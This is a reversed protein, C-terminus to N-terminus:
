HITRKSAWHDLLRRLVLALVFVLYHHLLAGILEHEGLVCVRTVIISLKLIGIVLLLEIDVVIVVSQIILMSSFMGLRVHILGLKYDFLTLYQIRLGLEHGKLACIDGLPAGNLLDDVLQLAVDTLVIHSESMDIAQSHQVETILFEFLQTVLVQKRADDVLLLHPVWDHVRALLVLSWLSRHQCCDVDLLVITAEFGGRCICLELKKHLLGGNNLSAITQILKLFRGFHPYALQLLLRDLHPALHLLFELMLPALDLGLFTNFDM